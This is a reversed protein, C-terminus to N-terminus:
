QSVRKWTPIISSRQLSRVKIKRCLFVVVVVVVVTYVLLLHIISLVLWEGEILSCRFGSRESLSSNSRPSPLPPACPSSGGTTPASFTWPREGHRTPQRSYRLRTRGLCLRPGPCLAWSMLLSCVGVLVYVVYEPCSSVACAWLYMSLMSLVHPSQVHGCTCVCCERALISQCNLLSPSFVISRKCFSKWISMCSTIDGYCSLSGHWLDEFKLVVQVWILLLANRTLILFEWCSSQGCVFEMLRYLWRWLWNERGLTVMGGVGEGGVWGPRPLLRRGWGGRWTWWRGRTRRPPWPPTCWTLRTSCRWRGLGSSRTSRRGWRWRVWLCTARAPTLSCSSWTTSAVYTALFPFTERFLMLKVQTKDHWKYYLFILM